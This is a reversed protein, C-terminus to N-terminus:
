VPSDRCQYKESKTTRRAIDAKATCHPCPAVDPKIGNHERYCFNTLCVQRQLDTVPPAATSVKRAKPRNARRVKVPQESRGRQRM